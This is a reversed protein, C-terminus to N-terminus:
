RKVEQKIKQAVAACVQQTQTETGQYNKNFSAKVQAIDRMAILRDVTQKDSFLRGFEQQFSISITHRDELCYGKLVLNDIYVVIRKM